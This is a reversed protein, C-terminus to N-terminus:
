EQPANPQQQVPAANVTQKTILDLAREIPINFDKSIASARTLADRAETERQERLEIWNIGQNGTIGALSQNGTTWQQIAMQAGYWSDIQFIAPMHFDIKRWDKSEPDKPAPIVGSEIGNAIAQVCFSKAFRKLTQQRTAIMQQVDSEVTRAATGNLSGPSVLALHWGLQYLAKEEISKLWDPIRDGPQEPRFSTFTENNMSDIFIHDGLDVYKPEQRTIADAATAERAGLGYQTTFDAGTGGKTAAVVATKSLTKVTRSIYNELDQANLATLLAAVIVSMGRLERTEVPESLLFAEKTSFFYIDKPDAEVISYALHRYSSDHVVGDTVLNNKYRGEKVIGGQYGIATSPYLAVKKTGDRSTTIVPLCDGGVDIENSIAFLTRNFAYNSGAENCNPFVTETLYEVIVKGYDKDTGKFYPSWGTLCAYANKRTIAARITPSSRFLDRALAHYVAREAPNIVRIGDNNSGVARPQMWSPNNIKTRTSTSYSVTRSIPVGYQDLLAM